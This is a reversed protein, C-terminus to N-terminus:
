SEPLLAAITTVMFQPEYERCTSLAHLNLPVPVGTKLYFSISDGDDRIGVHRLDRAQIRHFPGNVHDYHAGGGVPEVRCRRATFKTWCVVLLQHGRLETFLGLM